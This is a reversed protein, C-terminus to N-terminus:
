AASSIFSVSAHCRASKSNATLLPALVEVKEKVKRLTRIVRSGIPSSQCGAGAQKVKRRKKLFLNMWGDWRHPYNKGVGERARTPLPLPSIIYGLGQIIM